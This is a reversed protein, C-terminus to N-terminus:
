QEGGPLRLDISFTTKKKRRDYSQPGSIIESFLKSKNLKDIFDLIVRGADAEGTIKVVEAKKYNFSTLDIGEPQLMSIERLCELASHARDMYRKIMAVRRRMERVETAPEQWEAQEATLSALKSEQYYLGGLFGAAGATWIGFLVGATIFVMRRLRWAKAAARWAAPTLDLTVGERAATRRALGESLSPLSDLSRVDVECLCESRLKEVLTVPPEGRHWVTISCKGGSGHELELSMLTYGVERATESVFEDETLGESEWLSRFVIPVGDQSVIVEPVAGPMLLTVQRGEEAIEGADVLLRWWGLMAADVRSPFIGALGLMKGLSDVTEERAAAILVRCTNDKKELVEHSVVMSEVPFPSFKDVQLQVMSSLEDDSVAPLDVVRMILQQSSFSVAVDGKLAGCETKIREAVFETTRGGAGVQAPSTPQKDDTTEEEEGQLQGNVASLQSRGSSVVQLREKVRCLTTWELVEDSVVLGTIQDRAM